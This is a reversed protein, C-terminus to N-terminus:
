AAGEVGARAALDLIQRATAAMAYDIFRGDVVIAASGEALSAEFAELVKRQEAVEAASPTFVENIPEVHSPHVVLKGRYGLQRTHRAEAVLGEIDAVEGYIGDLLNTLQAARGDMVLKSRLYLRELGEPTWQFGLERAMDGNPATGPILGVVRPSASAVEYGKVCALPTEVLVLIAVSGAECGGAKEAEGLLMDVRRVDEATFVKPLIIGALGPRVIAELDDALGGGSLPNVKVFVVQGEAALAALGAGTIARAEDKREDPVSDELVLCLADAGYRGAKAILDERHGPTYLVSRLLPSPKRVADNV